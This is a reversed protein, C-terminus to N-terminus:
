GSLRFRTSANDPETEPAVGLVRVTVTHEGGPLSAPNLALRWRGGVGPGDRVTPIAAVLTDDVRVEVGSLGALEGAVRQGAVADLAVEIILRDRPVTAERDFPDGASDTLWVSPRALAPGPGPLPDDLGTGAIASRVGPQAVLELDAHVVLLRGPGTTNIRVPLEGERLVLADVPLDAVIPYRVGAALPQGDVAPRAPIERGGVDVVFTGSPEDRPLVTARLQGGVVYPVVEGAAPTVPQRGATGVTNPVDLRPSPRLPPTETPAGAFAVMDVASRLGDTQGGFGILVTAESWTPVVDGAAVPVGDRLVVVGDTRVVLEWRVSVGIHAAGVPQVAVPRGTRPTGPAVLVQVANAVPRPEDTLPPSLLAATHMRIVGPPLAPDARATDGSGDPPGDFGRGRGGLLDAPGPVLDITLEGTQGPQDTEVLVRGLEGNVADAASRLRLPTRSRLAVTEGSCRGSILLQRVHSLDGRTARACDGPTAFRWRQPDPIVRSDFRDVFGYGAPATTDTMSVATVPASRRGFADVARVEVYYEVADDLGNIQVTNEAVLRRGDPNGAANGVVGWSVEYGADQAAPLWSAILRRPGRALALSAPSALTGGPGPVIVGDAAFERVVTQPPPPADDVDAARQQPIRLMLVAGGIVVVAATIRALRRLLQGREVGAM